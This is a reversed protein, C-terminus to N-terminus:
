LKDPYFYEILVELPTKGQLGKHPKVTNYYNVFRILMTKRHARSKFQNKDYWMDFITRIVREAKGNTKPTRVRTFRQPIGNEQCVQMFAHQDPNGKYEVGNDSYMQEITYPCSEIVERLFAASSVSTKDPMIAAYLERSYDDIAVHLCEQPMFRSEGQLHPLSCTDMHMMEGPYAKNYRIAQKKRKEELKKEIKALRKMGFELTRYRVNMSTRQQLEQVRVRKLVKYITVRSVHYARALETM